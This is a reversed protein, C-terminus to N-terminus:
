ALTRASWRALSYVMIPVSIIGAAAPFSSVALAFLCGATMMAFAAAPFTRRVLLPLTVVLSALGLAREGLLLTFGTTVVTVLACLGLDFVFHRDRVLREAIPMASGVRRSGPGQQM